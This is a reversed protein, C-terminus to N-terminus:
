QITLKFAPFDESHTNEYKRVLRRYRLLLCGNASRVLGGPIHIMRKIQKAM